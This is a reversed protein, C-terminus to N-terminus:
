QWFKDLPLHKRTKKTKQKEPWYTGHQSTSIILRGMKQQPRFDDNDSDERINSSKKEQAIDRHLLKKRTVEKHAYGQFYCHTPGVRERKSTVESKLFRSM